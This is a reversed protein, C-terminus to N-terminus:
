TRLQGHAQPHGLAPLMDQLLVLEQELQQQLQQQQQQQQPRRQAQPHQQLHHPRHTHEPYAEPGPPFQGVLSGSPLPVCGLARWESSSQVEMGAHYPM